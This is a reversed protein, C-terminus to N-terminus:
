RRRQQTQGESEAAARRVVETPSIRVPTKRNASFGFVEANGVSMVIYLAGDKTRVEDGPNCKCM